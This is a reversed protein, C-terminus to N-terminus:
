RVINATDFEVERENPHVGGKNIWDKLTDADYRLQRCGVRVVPLVGERTLEYVRPLQLKLIVAVDRATLLQM